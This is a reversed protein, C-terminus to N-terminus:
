PDSIASEKMTQKMNYAQKVDRPLASSRDVGFIGGVNEALVDVAQRPKSKTLEEELAKLM